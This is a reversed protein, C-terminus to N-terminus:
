LVVVLGFLFLGAICYSYLKTFGFVSVTFTSISWYVSSLFSRVIFDFVLVGSIRFFLAFLRTCVSVILESFTVTFNYSLPSISSSVM